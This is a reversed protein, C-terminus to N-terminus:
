VLTSKSLVNGKLFSDKHKWIHRLLNSLFSVSILALSKDTWFGLPCILIVFSKNFISNFRIGAIYFNIKLYNVFVFSELNLSKFLFTNRFIEQNMITSSFSHIFSFLLDHKIGAASIVTPICKYQTPTFQKFNSQEVILQNVSKAPFWSSSVFNILQKFGTLWDSKVLQCFFLCITSM